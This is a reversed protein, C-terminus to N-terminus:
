EKMTSYYKREIRGLIDEISTKERIKRIEKSMDGEGGLMAIFRAANAYGLQEILVEIGETILEEETKVGM